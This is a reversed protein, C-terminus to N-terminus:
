NENGIVGCCWCLSVTLLQACPEDSALPVTTLGREPCPHVAAVPPCSPESPENSSIVDPFWVAREPSCLAVAGSRLAAPLRWLQSVGAAFAGATGEPQARPHQLAAGQAVPPEGPRM